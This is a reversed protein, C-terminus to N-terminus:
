LTMLVAAKKSAYRDVADDIDINRHVHLLTLSTFRSEGMTLFQKLQRLASFTREGDRAHALSM